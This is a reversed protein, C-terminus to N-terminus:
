YQLEHRSTKGGNLTRAPTKPETKIGTNPAVSLSIGYSFGHLCIGMPQVLSKMLRNAARYHIEMDYTSAEIVFGLTDDSILM